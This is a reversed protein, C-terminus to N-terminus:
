CGCICQYCWKFTEQLCMIFKDHFLVNTNLFKKLFTELINGAKKQTYKWTEIDCSYTSQNDELSTTIDCLLNKFMSDM